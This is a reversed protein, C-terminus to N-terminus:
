LRSHSVLFFHLYFDDRSVEEAGTTFEWSELPCLALILNHNGDVDRIDRLVVDVKGLLTFEGDRLYKSGGM